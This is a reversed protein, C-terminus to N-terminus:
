EKAAATSGLAAHLKQATMTGVKEAASVRHDPALHAYRLVIQYSSVGMLQMLEHLTVGNQVAWSAFTHATFAM